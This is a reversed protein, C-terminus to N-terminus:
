SDWTAILKKSADLLSSVKTAVPWGLLFARNEQPLVITKQDPGRAEIHSFPGSQLMQSIQHCAEMAQRTWSGLEETAETGWGEPSASAKKPVLVVFEAGARALAALKWVTKRHDAQEAEDPSAGAAAQATEAM